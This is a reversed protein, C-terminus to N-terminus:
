CCFICIRYRKQAVNNSDNFIDRLGHYFLLLTYKLLFVERHINGSDLKRNYTIKM